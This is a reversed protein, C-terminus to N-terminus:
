WGEKCGRSVYVYVFEYVRITVTYEGIYLYAPMIEFGYSWIFM